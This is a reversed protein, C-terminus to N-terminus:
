KIQDEKKQSTGALRGYRLEIRHIIRAIAGLGYKDVRETAAYIIQNREDETKLKRIIDRM